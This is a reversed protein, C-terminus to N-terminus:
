RFWTPYLSEFNGEHLAQEAKTNDSGHPIYLAIVFHVRDAAYSLIIQVMHSIFSQVSTGRVKITNTNDSGHPIYLVFM